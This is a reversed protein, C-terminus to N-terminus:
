GFSDLECDTLLSDETVAKGHEESIIRNIDELIEVRSKEM